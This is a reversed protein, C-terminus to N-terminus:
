NTFLHYRLFGGARMVSYANTQFDTLPRAYRCFPSGHGFVRLTHTPNATRVSPPALGRVFSKRGFACRYHAGTAKPDKVVIDCNKLKGWLCLFFVISSYSLQSYSLHDSSRYRSSAPSSLGPKVPCSALYRRAPTVRPVTCCFYVARQM